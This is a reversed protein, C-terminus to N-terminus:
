ALLRCVVAGVGVGLVAGVLVDTLYHMRLVIRSTAVSTAVFVMWPMLWPHAVSLVTGIAFANMTHGSPFSFEDFASLDARVLQMFHNTGVLRPRSRRCTRKLVIMVANAISTAASAVGLVRYEGITLLFLAIFAWLWGDGLRTSLLMWGRFWHPPYWQALRSSVHRDGADIQLLLQNM